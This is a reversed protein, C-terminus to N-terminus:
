KKVKSKRGEIQMRRHADTWSPLLEEEQQWHVISAENCWDQLKPMAQKHEKSNRYGMMDDASKWVTMTWYTRNKDTLLKGKIFGPAKKLQRTSRYIHWFFPILHLVSKLRLRTISIFFM